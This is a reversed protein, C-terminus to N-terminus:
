KKTLYKILHKFISFRDKEVERKTSDQMEQYEADLMLIEVKNRSTTESEHTEHLSNLIITINPMFKSLDVKKPVSSMFNFKPGFSFVINHQDSDVVLSNVKEVHLDKSLSDKHDIFDLITPSILSGKMFQSIKSSLILGYKDFIATQTGVSDHIQKVVADWDFSGTSSTKSAKGM